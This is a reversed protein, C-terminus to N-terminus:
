PQEQEVAQEDGPTSYRVWAKDPQFAQDWNWNGPSSSLPKGDELFVVAQIEETLSCLTNVVSYIAAWEALSHGPLNRYFTAAFDVYLLRAEPDHYVAHLRSQDPITALLDATEPGTLLAELARTAREVLTKSDHIRRPEGVLKMDAPSLFFVQIEEGSLPVDQTQDPTRHSVMGPPLTVQKDSRIQFYLFGGGAIM